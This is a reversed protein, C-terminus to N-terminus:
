EYMEEGKYLKQTCDAKLISTISMNNSKGLKLYMVGTFKDYFVSEKQRPNHYIEILDIYPNKIELSKRKRQKPVPDEIPLKGKCMIM